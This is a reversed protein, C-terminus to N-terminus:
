EPRGKGDDACFSYIEKDILVWGKNWPHTVDKTIFPEYEYVTLDATEAGYEGAVKIIRDTTERRQQRGTGIYDFWGGNVPMIILKAQVGTQRCVDLFAKLDGFEPSDSCIKDPHANKEAKYTKRFNLNWSRDSIEFPNDSAELSEALGQEALMDFAEDSIEELSNKIEGKRSLRRVALAASVRDKDLAFFEEARFLLRSLTDKRGDVLFRDIIKVKTRFRTNGSLMTESREAVYRKTEDSIDPNQMFRIYESESFRLGYNDPNVGDKKFWTPSVLLIVKGRKLRDSVSGMAISHFLIQNCPGGITILDADETRLANAPHYETRRGHRFESSGMVLISDRSINESLVSYSLDKYPSYWFGFRGNGVTLPLGAAFAHTAAVFITMLLVAAIFARIKRM